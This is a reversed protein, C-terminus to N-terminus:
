GRAAQELLQALARTKLASEQAESAPDSDAVIGCGAAWEVTGDADRLATRIAVSLCTRRAPDHFGITGCYPGRRFRETRAIVRMSQIKPAGTVSGPPFTARLLEAPAIGERLTGAVEAVAHVVTPHAEAARPERVRVSGIQCARGLDNRMLDVIMHLEAADKESSMLEGPGAASPRTGKIPRTRVTRTPADVELFLEPSLSLISRGAGIELYAGHRAGPSSLAWAALARPDGSVRALFARAINAQFVEGARIAEVTAAVDGAYESDTRRPSLPAHVRLCAPPGSPLPRSARAADVHRACGPAGTEWWSGDAHDHVLAGDAIAFWALPWPARDRSDRDSSQLDAHPEWLAGADYSLFGVSGSHFPLPGPEATRRGDWAGGLARELASDLLARLGPAREDGRGPLDAGARRAGSASPVTVTRVAPVLLSWRALPGPGASVLACVPVDHAWAALAQAPTFTWGLRRPACASAAEPADRTSDACRGPVPDITPTAALIVRGDRRSTRQAVRCIM